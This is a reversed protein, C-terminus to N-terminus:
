SCDQSLLVSVCSCIATPCFVDRDKAFVMCKISSVSRISPLSMLHYTSLRSHSMPYPVSTSPFALAISPQAHYLHSKCSLVPFPGRNSLIAYWEHYVIFIVLASGGPKIPTLHSNGGLNATRSASIITLRLRMRPVLHGHDMYVYQRTIVM